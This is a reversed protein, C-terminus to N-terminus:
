ELHRQKIRDRIKYRAERRNVSQHSQSVGRIDELMSTYIPDHDSEYGSYMADMEEKILLPSMISDEDSQDGSEVDNRPESSSNIEFPLNGEEFQTLTIVDGTQERPSMYCPTYIVSPRMDMAESYPRPTYVLASSFREDCVVDYSYIIKRTSPAYVLYGKQHQPIGVFIGRFGKQAQHRM